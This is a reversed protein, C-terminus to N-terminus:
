RVSDVTAGCALPTVNLLHLWDTVIECIIWPADNFTDVRKWGGTFNDPGGISLCNALTLPVLLGAPFVDLPVDNGNGM